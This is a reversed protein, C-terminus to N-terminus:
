PMLSRRRRTAGCGPGRRRRGRPSRRRGHVPARLAGEAVVELVVADGADGADVRAGEGALQAGAADHHAGDGVVLGGLLGEGAEAVEGAVAGGIEHGPDARALVTDFSGDSVPDCGGRSHVGSRLLGASRRGRGRRSTCCGACAGGGRSRARGDDGAVGGGFVDEGQVGVADEERGAGAVGGEEVVGDRGRSPRTPLVGMM